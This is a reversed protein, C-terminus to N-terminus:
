PIYEGVSQDQILYNALQNAVETAGSENFHCDDLFITTDKPLRQALDLFDVQDQGLCANKLQTNFIHMAEALVTVSYYDSCCQVQYKGVGGMWLLEQEAKPMTAKWLSPQSVFLVPIGAKQTKIILKNINTKYLSLASSLDPAQTIQKTAQQRYERWRQYSTGGDDQAVNGYLMANKVQKALQWYAPQKYFPLQNHPTISFVKQTLQEQTQNLYNSSDALFFNLDNVGVMIIILAISDIVKEQLLHELQILHHGSHLGSKGMNGVWFSDSQQENLYHQLLAPWTEQQDLYFCETTSGGITIIKKSPSEPLEDARLGISNTQFISTGTIGKLIKPNPQLTKQLSPPWFYTQNQPSLWFMQLM